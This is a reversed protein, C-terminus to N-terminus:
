AGGEGCGDNEGYGDNIKEPTQVFVIFRPMSRINFYLCGEDVMKGYKDTQEALGRVFVVFGLKVTNYDKFLTVTDMVGGGEADVPKKRYGDDKKELKGWWFRHISTNLKFCSLGADVM